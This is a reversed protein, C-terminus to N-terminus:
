ASICLKIAYQMIYATCNCLYCEQGSYNFQKSHKIYSRRSYPWLLDYKNTQSGELNGSM